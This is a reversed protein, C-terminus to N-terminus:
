GELLQIYYLVEGDETEVYITGTYGDNTDYLVTGKPLKTASFNSFFLSSTTAKKIKGIEEGKQIRDKVEQFWELDTANSYIFGEYKLIDADENQKLVDRATVREGDASCGALSLVAMLMFFVTFRKM